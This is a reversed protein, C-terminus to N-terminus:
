RAPGDHLHSAQRRRAYALLRSKAAQQEAREIAPGPPVPRERRRWLRWTLLRAM